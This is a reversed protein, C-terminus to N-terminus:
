SSTCFCFPPLPPPVTVNLQFLTFHMGERYLNICTECNDTILAWYHPRCQPMRPSYDPCLTLSPDFSSKPGPYRHSIAMTMNEM